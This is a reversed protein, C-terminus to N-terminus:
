EATEPETDMQIRNANDAVLERVKDYMLTQRITEKDYLAEFAELSSLEYQNVAYDEARERYEDETLIINEARAIAYSIMEEKVSNKAQEMAWDYFEDETMSYNVSIFNTFDIKYAEAYLKNTDVIQNYLDNLEAKPYKKVETNEVIKGWTQSIIYQTLTDNYYKYLKDKVAQEYDAVSDYGLYGRVFDDTYLPLEQECVENLTIEFHADKGSYEPSPEYPSPFTIDVSIVDGAYHEEIAQEFGDPMVGTGLTLESDTEGPLPEGDCTGTYDIYVTDGTKAGRYTVTTLKSYYSLTTFIENQIKEDTIDISYAKADLNKYEALDIYESLDYNYRYTLMDDNKACSSFSGALMVAALMGCIIGKIKM